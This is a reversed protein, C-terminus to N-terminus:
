DSEFQKSFLILRRHFSIILEFCSTSGIKYDCNEEKEEIFTIGANIEALFQYVM